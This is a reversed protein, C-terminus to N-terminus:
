SQTLYRPSIRVVEGANIDINDSHTSTITVTVLVADGALNTSYISDNEGTFHSHSVEMGEVPNDIGDPTYTGGKEECGGCLNQTSNAAGIGPTFPLGCNTCHRKSEM